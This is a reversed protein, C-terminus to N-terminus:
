DDSVIVGRDELTEIDLWNSSGWTLDLYNYSLGVYDGSGIGPNNVLPSIDSIQNNRLLIQTINTLGSLESIDVIRNEQLWLVKLNILSSLANIDIIQNKQLWLVRLDVCHQIGELNAISRKIAPLFVLGALDTDHIDGTPIGIAERIAAELGPDPFNIVVDPCSRNQPNFNVRVGRGQLAEIGLMSPSGSQLLLQNEQLYVQDGYGIEPNNVLPAIDCIRNNSLLIETLNILGSLTSIDRIQNNFLWLTTLNTLGSLASIDRIQNNSLWLTRLNTLESLASIDRIQNNSLWLTTLDVCHQIGELNAIGRKIAPLFVLGALDTDHIDGTPIGIAERITAELGPDPFDVVVNSCSGNQPDFSIDVGRRQLAEIDPINPSGYQLSLQNRRLMVSDGRGIGPNNVLPAIDNIQNNFLWLMRLNTLGSLASIDRIQNNFLWLTRLNTLESLASIDVIENHHLSLNTLKTLDSLASIDVIRNNYLSLSKLNILGSLASIDRIQNNGLHLSTLAVCHQIGELNAIGWSGAFFQRLGILDTDHIDGTPKAIKNRIAAELGPDPFNVVVASVPGSVMVVLVVLALAIGIATLSRGSM